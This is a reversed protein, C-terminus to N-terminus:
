HIIRTFIRSAIAEFVQTLQDGTPSFYYNGCSHGSSITACPDSSPDGDDGVAAIFRLLKEAQDPECTYGHDEYWKGCVENNIMQDGLGITFVIAGQGPAACSTTAPDFSNGEPCGVFYAQDVAADESDYGFEGPGIEFDTDRCFPEVWTPLGPSGPCIRPPPPTDNSAANAAGDSLIILIPVAEERLWTGGFLGGGAKLGDAINTSTCLSPDPWGPCSNTNDIVLNLIQDVIDGQVTSPYQTITADVDFNVVAMRDYPFYMRGVLGIAADRVDEFPSCNGQIGPAPDPDNCRDADSWYDDPIDWNPDTTLGPAGPWGYQWPQCDDDVDDGDDDDSDECSADYGMSPSTDIVLVLDVSAAESIAESRINISGFGVIPMFTFEVPMTAEVRIFKRPVENEGINGDGDLDVGIGEDEGYRGDKDDDPCLDLDHYPNPNTDSMDAIDCVFIEANAPSLSNLNIFEGAAAEIEALSRGERFQNAAALSASDVARRLHGIQIFLIGADVTLGVFAALGVFALAILVMAQGRQVKGSSDKPFLHLLRNLM